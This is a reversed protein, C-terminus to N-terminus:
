TKMNNIDDLIKLTDMIKEASSVEEWAKKKVRSASDKRFNVFHVQVLNRRMMFYALNPRVKAVNM